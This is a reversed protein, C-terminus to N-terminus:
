YRRKSKYTEIGDLAGVWYTDPYLRRFAKKRKALRAANALMMRLPEPDCREMTYAVADASPKVPGVLPEWRGPIQLQQELGNLSGLRISHMGFVSLFIASTPITSNKRSDRVHELMELFSWRREIYRALRGLM